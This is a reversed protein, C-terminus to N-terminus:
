IVATNRIINGKKKAGDKKPEDKPTDGKQDSEPFVVPLMGVMSSRRSSPCFMTGAPVLLYQQGAAGEVVSKRRGTAGDTNAGGLNYSM